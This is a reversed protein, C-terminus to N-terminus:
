PLGLKRTPRLFVAPRKCVRYVSLTVRDTTSNICKPNVPTPIRVTEYGNNDCLAPGTLGIALAVLGRIQM